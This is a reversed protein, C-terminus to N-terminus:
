AVMELWRKSILEWYVDADLNEYAGLSYGDNMEVLATLGNSLVGFDLAYGIPAGAATMAKVADHMTPINPKRSEDGSGPAFCVQQIAGDVIYARWESVFEVPESIWCPASASAGNFRPDYSDMTVFGTFRKVAVPKIFLERGKDLLAKAERLTSLKQVHRFLLPKLCEPYSNEVPLEKGHARLAHKVLDVSGAVVCGPEFKVRGRAVKKVMIPSVQYKALNAGWQLLKEEEAFKFSRWELYAIPM